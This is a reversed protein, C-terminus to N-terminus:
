GTRADKTMKEISSMQCIHIIFHITPTGSLSDSVNSRMAEATEIWKFFESLPISYQIRNYEIIESWIM